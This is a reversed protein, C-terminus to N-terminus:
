EGKYLTELLYTRLADQIPNDCAETIFISEEESLGAQRGLEVFRALSSPRKHVEKIYKALIDLNDERSRLKGDPTLWWSFRRMSDVIRRIKNSIM